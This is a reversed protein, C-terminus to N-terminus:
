WSCIMLKCSQYFNQYDTCFQKLPAPLVALDPVVELKVPIHEPALILASFAGQRYLAM